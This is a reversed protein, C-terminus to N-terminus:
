TRNDHLPILAVWGSAGTGPSCTLQAPPSSAVGWGEPCGSSASGPPPCAPARPGPGPYAEQSSAQQSRGGARSLSSRQATGWLTVSRAKSGSRWWLWAGPGWPETAVVELILVHVAGPATRAHHGGPGLRDIVLPPVWLDHAPM